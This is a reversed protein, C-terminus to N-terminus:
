RPGRRRTPCAKVLRIVVSSVLRGRFRVRWDPRVNTTLSSFWSGWDTEKSSARAASMEAVCITLGRLALMLVAMEGMFADGAFDTTGRVGDVGRNRSPRALTLRLTEVGAVGTVGDVGRCRTM